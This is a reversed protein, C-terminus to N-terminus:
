GEQIQVTRPLCAIRQGACLIVDVGRPFRDRNSDWMQLFVSPLGDVRLLHESEIGPGTLRWGDDTELAEVQVVLTTSRDPYEQTGQAFDTLLPMSGADTVVAFAADDTETAWGAGTHFSLWDRVEAVDATKDLWIRTDYDALTLLIAGTAPHLPGPSAVADLTKIRGPRAMADMVASFVRQAGHVPDDFGPSIPSTTSVTELM